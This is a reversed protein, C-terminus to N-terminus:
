DKLVVRIIMDIGLLIPAIAIGLWTLALIQKNGIRDDHQNVADNRADRDELTFLIESEQLFVLKKDIMVIPMVKVSVLNDYRWVGDNIDNVFKGDKYKLEILGKGWYRSLLEDHTLEKLDSFDANSPMILFFMEEIVNPQPPAIDFSYKIQDFPSFVYPSVFSFTGSLRGIMTGNHTIPFHVDRANCVLGKDCKFNTILQESELLLPIGKESALICGGIVFLVGFVFITTKVIKQNKM